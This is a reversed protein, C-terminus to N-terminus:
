IPDATCVARAAPDPLRISGGSRAPGAPIATRGPAAVRRTAM